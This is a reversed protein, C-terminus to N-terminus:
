QTGRTNADPDSVWGLDIAITQYRSANQDDREAEGATTALASKRHWLVSLNRAFYVNKPDIEYAKKFYLIARDVDGRRAFVIANQQLLTGLYDRRSLTRLYAGHDIARQSINLRHAYGSDAEYGAGGSLEINQEKLAPDIFRLFNHEPASVAYVPYGLRQAIAMYLLPITICQGHKTDLTRNIFYNDQNARADPSHDYQIGWVRYYWTNLARIVSDPDHKGHRDIFQKAEGVLDDIRASYAATDVDPYIEKAFTLAALGTDIKDEPLSLIERIDPPITPQAPSGHEGAHVVVTFMLALVALWPRCQM